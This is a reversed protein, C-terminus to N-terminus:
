CPSETRTERHTKARPTRTRRPEALTRPGAPLRIRTPITPSIRTRDRDRGAAVGGFRHPRATELRARPALDAALRCRLRRRRPRTSTELRRVAREVFISRRRRIALRAQSCEAARLAARESGRAADAA